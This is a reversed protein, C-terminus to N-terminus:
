PTIAHFFWTQSVPTVSTAFGTVFDLRGCLRAFRSKPSLTGPVSALCIWIVLNLLLRTWLECFIIFTKRLIPFLPLQSWYFNGWLLAVNETLESMYTYFNMSLERMFTHSLSRRYERFWSNKKRTKIRVQKPTTWIGLRSFITCVSCFMSHKFFRPVNKFFFMSHKPCFEAHIKINYSGNRYTIRGWCGM